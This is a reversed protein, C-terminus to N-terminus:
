DLSFQWCMKWHVDSSSYWCFLRWGCLNDPLLRKQNRLSATIINFASLMNASIQFIVKSIQSQSIGSQIESLLLRSVDHLINNIILQQDTAIINIHTNHFYKVPIFFTLTNALLQLNIKYYILATLSIINLNCVVHGRFFLLSLLEIRQTIDRIRKLLNDNYISTLVKSFSSSKDNHSHFIKKQICITQFILKAQKYLRM